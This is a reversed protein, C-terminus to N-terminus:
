HLLKWIRYLETAGWAQADCGRQRHPINGDLIEPLQGACGDNLLLVSSSLISAATKRGAKGYIMYYAECYSPFQWTWATGNHYAPKRLTDENGEYIGIYPREPDNLANGDPGLVPLKFSVKRDALSRIAGPILLASSAKLISKSFDADDFAKLTLALLQNPRLHDDAEAKSASVGRRCHLCDSLYGENKLVFYKRISEKVKASLKKWESKGTAEELFNLGAFWLAQIEIPYGERPTAAPFNTDMWTFHSPSFVLGSASDVAIGNSTGRIYGHAISELANLLTKKKDLRTKLFKLNGEARCIDGCATILWLPADSTDRNSANGGYIMNPITGNEEYSAFQLLIKRVDDMMGASILGRACILTDRGWDLFWPYGAIVTKLEDRKVVFQKMAHLLIKDTSKDASVLMNDTKPSPSFNLKKPETNTLIQGLLEIHEGGGLLIEFYGPSFLDSLPELGRAAENEHRISYTWEPASNYRGKSATLILRRDESPKFVFSKESPVVTKPWSNEPGMFAKTEFHFNRDEIDPRIILRMPMRDEIFAARNKKMKRFVKLRVANKEQVIAMNVAFDAFMGSSLPFSFNWTGSGDGCLTFNETTDLSFEHTRGHHIVWMRCRRWMIHRDEPHSTSLNAALISDYRSRLVSWDLCPRLMAGRQNGQLFTMKRERILATSFLTEANPADESLFLIDTETRESKRDAYVTIKIKKLTHAAPTKFPTFVAFFGGNTEKLSDHLKLIRGAEKIAVRFRYPAKVLLIHGPPVMVVRRRDEPWNWNIIPSHGYESFIKQICLYPNEMLEKTMADIDNEVLVHSKNRSCLIDLVFARARQSDIRDPRLIKREEIEKVKLLANKEPSLCLIQGSKLPIGSKKGRVTKILFEKGSILETFKTSACPTGSFDLAADNKKECNLNILVILHHEANIDSRLFAIIDQPGADLFEISAGHHFAPHSILISNLRSIYEIQNPYSGWNLARAEHVDIKETAFWEVGNAFGFAGDSSLLACLGTRMMAYETSKAALRSNDHTEAYHVMLGDSSSVSSSYKLYKEIDARSYNQFLESYAWNMNAVDLLRVTVAPDGGLGELLFIVNPYESRVRAIIYEWAPVPVMYGADCRFGDVGRSCWILFMEAIYSWLDLRKHDLETLDGWTVGWAGPSHISGDKERVLWEPHEEHIKAAWGTHNIAIDLFIKANKRHVADVLEMFQDLPTARKDFEALAPDVSTFDLSAYPSGYRGMRAYVTPTPNIPLLHLIRCKLDDVIHDLEKILNRFTGSPPIVTYGEKDLEKMCRADNEPILNLSEAKRKNIGFQRVFACYISNACCYEAPEVNIHINEGAPWVPEASNEPLFFLKSEFHGTELLAMTISYNNKDTKIMPVDHWDQRTMPQRNEVYSIIECRKTGANGINTRLFAEGKASPSVTLKFEITDGRSFLLHKGTDPYEKLSLM